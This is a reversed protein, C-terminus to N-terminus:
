GSAQRPGAAPLRRGSYPLLRAAYPMLLPHGPHGGKTIALAVPNIKPYSRLWRLMVLDQNLHAGHTGWACVVPGIPTSRLALVMAQRFAKENEPGIPDVAKKMQAPSRSRFAFLNVVQIRGCEWKRAFGICKRITQDDAKSDATSPNLM